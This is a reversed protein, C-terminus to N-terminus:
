YAAFQAEIWAAAALAREDDGPRAVVQLGLPLGSEGHALDHPVPVSIQPGGLFHWARNFQPDGTAGLGHPAEGPASPTLLVDAEGFLRDGAAVCQRGVQLAEVYDPASVARGEDILAALRASLLERRYQAEPGLARATEFLQVTRQADALRAFPTGQGTSEYPWALERVRAGRAGLLRSVRELAALMSPALQASWPTATWAIAPAHAQAPAHQWQPQLALSAAVLAVDEVSRAFAGVVDLTDSVAKAGSRPVAGRTPVFGVVGCFAAPRIVSGATQTGIAFPVMHAAVAAASGSSSGGPTHEPGHPNRTPGPTFNALEATVTKGYVYAGVSRLAAVCAADAHPVHGIFVASGYESPIDATDINDKVAVPLGHLAGRWDVRDLERATELARGADFWAFARIERERERVVDLFSHTVAECTVEDAAIMRALRTAPLRNLPTKM